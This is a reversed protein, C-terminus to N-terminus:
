FHFELPAPTDRLESRYSILVASKRVTARVAVRGITSCECPKKVVLYLRFSGEINRAETRRFHWSPQSQQLGYATLFPDHRSVKTAIEGGITPEMIGFKFGPDFKLSSSTEVVDGDHLPKMSWAIPAPEALNDERRLTLALWVEEFPDREDGYFTAALSVINFSFGHSSQLFVLGEPDDKLLEPTVSAIMPAAVTLRRTPAEVAASYGVGKTIRPHLPLDVNPGTSLSLTAM